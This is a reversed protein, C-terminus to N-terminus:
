APDLFLNTKRPMTCILSYQAYRRLAPLQMQTMRCAVVTMTWPQPQKVSSTQAPPRLSPLFILNSPTGRYACVFMYFMSTIIVPRRGISSVGKSCFLEIYHLTMSGLILQAISAGRPEKPMAGLSGKPLLLLVQRTM